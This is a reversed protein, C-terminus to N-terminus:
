KFVSFISTQNFSKWISMNLKLLLIRHFVLVYIYDVIFYIGNRVKVNEEIRDIEDGLQEVVGGSFSSLYEHLERPKKLQQVKSLETRMNIEKLLIYRNVLETSNVAIEAKFRAHEPGLSSTKVDKKSRAHLIM